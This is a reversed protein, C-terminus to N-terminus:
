KQPLPSSLQSLPESCAARGSSQNSKKYWVPSSAVETGLFRVGEEPQQPCPREGVGVGVLVYIFIGGGKEMGRSLLVAGHPLVM